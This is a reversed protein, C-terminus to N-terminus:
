QPTPAAAETQPQAQQAPAQLQDQRKAYALAASATVATVKSEELAAIVNLVALQQQVVLTQKAIALLQPDTVVTQAAALQPALALGAAFVINRIM